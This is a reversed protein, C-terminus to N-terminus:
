QIREWGAQETHNVGNQNLPHIRVTGLLPVIVFDSSSYSMIYSLESLTEALVVKSSM